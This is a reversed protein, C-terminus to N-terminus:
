DTPPEPLLMWHTVYKIEKGYYETDSTYEFRNHKSCYRSIDIGYKKCYVLCLDDANPLEDNVSIWESTAIEQQGNKYNDEYGWDGSQSFLGM